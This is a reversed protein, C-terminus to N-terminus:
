APNFFTLVSTVPSEDKKQLEPQFYVWTCLPAPLKVCCEGRGGLTHSAETEELKIFLWELPLKINTMMASPTKHENVVTKNLCRVGRVRAEKKNKVQQKNTHLKCWFLFFDLVPPFFFHWVLVIIPLFPLSASFYVGLMHRKPLVRLFFCSSLPQCRHRCIQSGIMLSACLQRSLFVKIKKQPEGRKLPLNPLCDKLNRAAFFNKKPM